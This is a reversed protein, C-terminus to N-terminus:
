RIEKGFPTLALGALKLHQIAFPIGIITIAFFFALLLHTFAIWIGGLIIWLVNMIVSFCGTSSETSVVKKGFPILALLALKFCQYGFPIGIITLCLLVGGILYELFILWGGLVIWIINGIINM